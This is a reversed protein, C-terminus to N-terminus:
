YEKLYTVGKKLEDVIEDKNIKFQTRLTKYKNNKDTLYL